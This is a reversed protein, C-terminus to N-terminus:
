TPFTDGCRALRLNCCATLGRGVESHLTEGCRLRSAGRHVACRGESRAGRRGARYWRGTRRGELAMAPALGLALAWELPEQGPLVAAPRQEAEALARDKQSVAPRPGVAQRAGGQGAAQAMALAAWLAQARDKRSVERRAAEPARELSEQAPEWDVLGRDMRSAERLQRVLAAQASRLVERPAGGQGAALALGPDMQRVVALARLWGPERLVPAAPARGRGM